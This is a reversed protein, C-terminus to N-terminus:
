NIDPEQFCEISTEIRFNSSETKREAHFLDLPYTTGPTIGLEAKKADFDIFGERRPHLGGLDLALKGNVFVWVDDDGSFTFREGGKYTFATHVETTFGFNRDRGQRDKGENGFFMGDVPFFGPPSLTESDYVFLTGNKTLPLSIELKQNTGPVDNYWQNFNAESTLQNTNIPTVVVPKKDAGLNIQVLGKTEVSGSFVQFDPHRGPEGIKFDRIIAKIGTCDVASGGGTGAMGGGTGAGGGGTASGGGGSGGSGGGTGSPGGGNGGDVGKGADPRFRVDSGCDCASM